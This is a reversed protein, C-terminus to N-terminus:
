GCIQEGFLCCQLFVDATIADETDNLFDAFHRPCCEAMVNLGEAISDLDLRRAEANVGGRVLNLSGGKNLPYDLEQLTFKQDSRFWFTPPRQLDVIQYPTDVGGQLALSLLTRVRARSVRFLDKVVFEMAGTSIARPPVAERLEHIVERLVAANQPCGYIDIATWLVSLRPLCKAVVAELNASTPQDKM